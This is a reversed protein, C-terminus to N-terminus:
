LATGREFSDKIEKTYKDFARSIKRNFHANRDNIYTVDDEEKVPRTKSFKAREAIEDKVHSVLRDVAESSPKPHIANFRITRGDKSVQSAVALELSPENALGAEYSKKQTEYIGLNPKLKNINKNYKKEAVQNFDTFGIESRKIREEERAEWKEAAEASYGWFRSREYDEGRDAADLRAQLREAELTKKEIKAIFKPNTKQRQHEAFVEQRNANASEDMRKRLEKLKQLRDAVSVAPAQGSEAGAKPAMTDEAATEIEAEKRSRKTKRAKSSM